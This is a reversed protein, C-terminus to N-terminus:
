IKQLYLVPVQAVIVTHDGFSETDKINVLTNTKTGSYSKSSYKESM